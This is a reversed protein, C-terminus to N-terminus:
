RCDGKAKAARGKVYALACAGEGGSRRTAVYRDFAPSSAIDTGPRSGLAGSVPRYHPHKAISKETGVVALLPAHRLEDGRREDHHRHERGLLDAQPVAPRGWGYEYCEGFGLLLSRDSDIYEKALNCDDAYYGVSRQKRVLESFTEDACGAPGAV